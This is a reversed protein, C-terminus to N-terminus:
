IFAYKINFTRFWSSSVFLSSNCAMVLSPSGPKNLVSLEFCVLIFISVLLLSSNIGSEHNWPERSSAEPSNRRHVDAGAFQVLGLYSSCNLPVLSWSFIWLYTLVGLFVEESILRFCCPYTVFPSVTFSIIGGGFGILVRAAILPIATQLCGNWKSNEDRLM